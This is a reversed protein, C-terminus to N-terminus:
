FIFHHYKIQWKTFNIIFFYKIVEVMKDGLHTAATTTIAAALSDEVKEVFGQTFNALNFDDVSSFLFKKEIAKGIDECIELDSM